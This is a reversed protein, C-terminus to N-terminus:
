VASLYSNFFKCIAQMRFLWCTDSNIQQQEIISIHRYQIGSLSAFSVHLM